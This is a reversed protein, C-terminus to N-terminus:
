HVNGDFPAMFTPMPVANLADDAEVAEVELGADDMAQPMTQGILAALASAAQEAEPWEMIKRANVLAHVAEDLSKVVGALTLRVVADIGSTPERYGDEKGEMDAGLVDVISNHLDILAQGINNVQGKTIAM